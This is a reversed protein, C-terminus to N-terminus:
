SDRPSPSTYFLCREPRYYDVASALEGKAIGVQQAIKARENILHQLQEDIANIRARIAELEMSDQKSDGGAM